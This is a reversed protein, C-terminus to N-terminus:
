RLQTTEILLLEINLARRIECSRVKDRLTVGPAYSPPFLAGTASDSPPASFDCNHRLNKKLATCKALEWFVEHEFIARWVLKRGRACDLM